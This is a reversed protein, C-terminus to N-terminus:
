EWTRHKEAVWEVGDYEQIEWEVAAPVEIIKLKSFKSNAEEGLEEICRILLPCARHKYVTHQDLLVYEKGKEKILPVALWDLFEKESKMLLLPDDDKIFDKKPVKTIHKDGHEYLWKVAKQSLRFGGYCKNIAIKIKNRAKKNAKEKVYKKWFDQALIEGKKNLCSRNHLFKLVADVIFVETNAIWQRLDEAETM